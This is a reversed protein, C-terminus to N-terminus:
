FAADLYFTPFNDILGGGNYVLRLDVAWALYLYFLLYFAAPPLVPLVPRIRGTRTPTNGKITQAANM